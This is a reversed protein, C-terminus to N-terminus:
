QPNVRIMFYMNAEAGPALSGVAGSIKEGSSEDTGGPVLLPGKHLTTYAPVVDIFQVANVTSIGKNLLNLKYVVCHGPEVALAQTSFALTSVKAQDLPEKCDLTSQYKTLQMNVTGVTTIDTNKIDALTIGKYDGAEVIIEAASSAGQLVTSSSSVKLLLQISGQSPIGVGSTLVNLDSNVDIFKDAADLKGDNNADYYLSYIFSDDSKLPTVKFKLVSGEGAVSLTGEAVTGTNKLTHVYVISGGVSVQGQQDNTLVLQRAVSSVIEDKIADAQQNVPSHIAFWIPKVFNQQSPDVQIEACYQKATGGAVTGTSTSQKGLTSCTADGEYFKVTFGAATVVTVNQPDIASFSAYLNYNNSQTSRNEAVLPFVVKGDVVTKKLWAQGSNDIEGVGGGTGQGSKDSNYLDSESSSAVLKTVVNRVPDTIDSSTTSTAKVDVIINSVETNCSTSAYVGVQIEKVASAALSGTDVVGDGNTDTLLTKGDKTYLRVKACSPLNQSSFTLNYVDTVNGTNWVYNKFLVEQGPKLVAITELNDPTQDPDGDNAASTSTRNLVVGLSPSLTYNVTNSNLTYKVSNKDSYEYNATNPIKNKEAHKVKVQFSLTGSTLPAVSTVQAQVTIGDPLVRYEIGTNAADEAAVSDTLAVTGQNWRASNAVYELSSDLVDTILLPRAATGNNRYTLTYTIVDAVDGQSKDQAKVLAIVADDVVTATDEVKATLASETSSTAILDLISKQKEAADTPIGGVVVVSLSEGPKLSITSAATLLDNSDDPLGDQDRDVYVAVGDLNFDDTTLQNLSFQYTDPTNGTNTLVHPFSVQAGITGLQNQNQVLTLAYIKQVELSVPNSNVVLLNGTEDTYDGSAINSIYSGPAPFAYSYGFLSLMALATLLRVKGTKLGKM